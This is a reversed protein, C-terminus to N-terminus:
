VNPIKRDHSLFKVRKHECNYCLSFSTLSNSKYSERRKYLNEMM